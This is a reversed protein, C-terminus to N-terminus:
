AKGSLSRMFSRKFEVPTAKPRGLDTRAGSRTRIEILGPGRVSLVDRVADRIQAADVATRAIVYGCAVAITPIDIHLGRTPQGGVSEHSGNNIIIHLLNSFTATTTLGGMHMILAGDGDICVVKRDPRALAIGAAIQSAHGMAGVTLFDRQPDRQEAVRIEYLERSAKGTTGVLVADPPLVSILAKLAGERTLTYEPTLERVTADAFTGKRVVIGVPCSGCRAQNLLEAIPNEVDPMQASLIVHPIGLCQLLDLTILGQKVHQPEDNIQKGDRIEGRWGILLLMPIGYVDADALSVLPNIANGLGSNQMYVCTLEGTGLYYGTALAIASGENATIWHREAPVSMMIEVCLPQLLSDPVGAFLRIGHKQLITLFTAPQIM